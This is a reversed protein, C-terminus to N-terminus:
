HTTGLRVYEGAMQEVTKGVPVQTGARAAELADLTSPENGTVPYPAQANAMEARIKDREEKRIVEIKADEAAKAKAALDEKFVDQYVGRIGLQQVRKDKLLLNADLVKGFQAYHEM